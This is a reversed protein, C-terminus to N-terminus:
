PWIPVENPDVKRLLHATRIIGPEGGGFWIIVRLWRMEGTQLPAWRYTCAKPPKAPDGRVLHPRQVTQRIAALTADGGGLNTILDPHKEAIHRWREAPLVVFRGRWDTLELIAASEESM